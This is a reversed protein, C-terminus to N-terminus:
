ELGATFEDAEQEYARFPNRLDLVRDRDLYVSDWDVVYRGVGADRLRRLVRARGAARTNQPPHEVADDIREEALLRHMQGADVLGHYLGRAPDVNHYELDFARAADGTWAEGESEIYQGIMARKAAWDVGAAFKEPCDRRAALLERSEAVVRAMEGEPSSEPLGDRLGFVREASCM